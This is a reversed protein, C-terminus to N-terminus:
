PTVVAPTENKKVVNTTTNDQILRKNTEKKIKEGIKGDRINIVMVTSLLVIMFLTFILM